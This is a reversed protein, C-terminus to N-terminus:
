SFCQKETSHCYVQLASPSSKHFLPLSQKHLMTSLDKYSPTHTGKGLYVLAQNQLIREARVQKIDKFNKHHKQRPQDGSFNFACTTLLAMTTFLVRCIYLLTFLPSLVFAECNQEETLLSPFSLQLIQFSIKLTTLPLTSFVHFPIDLLLPARSFRLSESASCVDGIFRHLYQLKVVQFLM